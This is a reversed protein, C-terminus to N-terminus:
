LCVNNEKPTGVNVYTKLIQFLINKKSSRIFILADICVSLVNVKLNTHVGEMAAIYVPLVRDTCVMMDQMPPM